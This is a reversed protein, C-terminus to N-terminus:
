KLHVHKEISHSLQQSLHFTRCHEAQYLVTYHLNIKRIKIQSPPQISLGLSGKWGYNNQSDTAFVTVIRLKMLTFNDM